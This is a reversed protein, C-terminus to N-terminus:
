KIIFINEDKIYKLFYISLISSLNINIFDNQSIFAYMDSVEYFHAGFEQGWVKYNLNIM